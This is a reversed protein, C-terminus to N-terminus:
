ASLRRTLYSAARSSSYSGHPLLISNRPGTCLWYSTWARCASRLLGVQRIILLSPQLGQLLSATEMNRGVVHLIDGDRIEEMLKFYNNIWIDDGFEHLGRRGGQWM